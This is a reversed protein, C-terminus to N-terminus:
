CFREKLFLLLADHWLGPQDLYCPHPAGNIMVQRADKIADTLIDANAPSSVADESGWVVLCPVTIRELRAQNEAVGVAGVLVLGGVQHPHALAFELCVRGGMSPGVLVPADFGSQEIFLRLLRDPAMESPASKGFGPLDLAIVHFGEAALLALTGLERWTEAQFKMGHLMIVAQGNDPGAELYHVTAGEITLRKESIITGM